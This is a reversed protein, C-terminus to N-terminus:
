DKTIYLHVVPKCGPHGSRTKDWGVEKLTKAMNQKEDGSFSLGSYWRGNEGQTVEVVKNLKSVPNTAGFGHLLEGVTTRVPVHCAHFPMTYTRPFQWPPTSGTKLVHIKTHEGPFFYNYGPECGLGGTSNTMHAAPMDPNIVPRPQPLRDSGSFGFSHPIQAIPFGGTPM